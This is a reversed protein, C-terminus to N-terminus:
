KKNEEFKLTGLAMTEQIYDYKVDKKFSSKYEEVEFVIGEKGRRGNLRLGVYKCNFTYFLFCKEKGKLDCVKCNEQPNEKLYTEVVKRRDEWERDEKACDEEIGM